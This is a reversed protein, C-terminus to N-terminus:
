DKYLEWHERLLNARAEDGEREARAILYEYERDLATM